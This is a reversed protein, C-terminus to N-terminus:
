LPHIIVAAPRLAPSPNDRHGSVKQIRSAKEACSQLERRLRESERQLRENERLVADVRALRGGPTVPAGVLADVGGLFATPVPAHLVRRPPLVPISLPTALASRM